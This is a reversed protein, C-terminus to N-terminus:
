IDLSTDSETPPPKTLSLPSAIGLRWSRLAKEEWWARELHDQRKRCCTIMDSQWSARHEARGEGGM